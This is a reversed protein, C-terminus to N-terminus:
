DIEIIEAEQTIEKISKEFKKIEEKQYKEIANTLIDLKTKYTYREILGRSLYNYYQDDGVIQKCLSISKLHDKLFKDNEVEDLNKLYIDLIKAIKSIFESDNTINKVDEFLNIKDPIVKRPGSDLVGPVDTFTIDIGYRLASIFYNSIKFINLYDYLKEILSYFTIKTKNDKIDNSISNHFITSIDTLYNELTYQKENYNSNKYFNVITQLLNKNKYELINSIDTNNANKLFLTLEPIDNEILKKIYDIVIGDTEKEFPKFYILGEGFNSYLKESKYSKKLLLFNLTNENEIKYNIEKEIIKTINKETGKTIKKETKKRYYFMPSSKPLKKKAIENVHDQIDKFSGFSEKTNYIIKSVEELTKIGKFNEIQFNTMFDNQIEMGEDLKSQIKTRLDVYSFENKYKGKVDFILKLIITEYNDQNIKEGNNKLIGLTILKQYQRKLDPNKEFIHQYIQEIPKPNEKIDTKRKSLNEKIRKIFNKAKHKKEREKTEEKKEDDLAIYLNILYGAFHHVGYTNFLDIKESFYQSFIKIYGEDNDKMYRGRFFNIIKIFSILSLKHYNSNDNILVGNIKETNFGNNSWLLVLNRTFDSLFLNELNQNTLKKFQGKFKKSIGLSSSMEILQYLNIMIRFFQNNGLKMYNLIYAVFNAAYNWNFLGVNYFNLLAKRTEYYSNIDKKIFDLITSISNKGTEENTILPNQKIFKLFYDLDTAFKNKKFNDKGIIDSYFIKLTELELNKEEEDFKIWSKVFVDSFEFKLRKARTTKPKDGNAEILLKSSIDMPIEKPKSIYQYPFKSNTSKDVWKLILKKIFLESLVKDLNVEIGIKKVNLFIFKKVPSDTIETTDEESFNSLFLTRAKTSQKRYIYIFGNKINKIFDDEDTIFGLGSKKKEYLGSFNKLFKKTNNVVDFYIEEFDEDFDFNFIKDLEEKTQGYKIIIFLSDNINKVTEFLGKNLIDKKLIETDDYIKMLNLINQNIFDKVNEDDLTDISQNNEKINELFKIINEYFLKELRDEEKTTKEKTKENYKYYEKIFEDENLIYNTFIFNKHKLGDPELDIYNKIISVDDPFDNFIFNITEINLDLSRFRIIEHITTIKETEDFRKSPKRGKVDLIVDKLIDGSGLFDTYDYEIIDYNELETGKDILKELEEKSLSDLEKERKLREEEEMEEERTQIRDKDKSLYLPFLESYNFYDNDKLSTTSLHYSLTTYSTENEDLGYLGGARRTRGDRQKETSRNSAPELNLVDITQLVNIGQSFSNPILLCLIKEGHLNEKSNWKNLVLYSADIRQTTTLKVGYTAISILIDKYYSDNNEKKGFFNLFDKSLTLPGDKKNVFFTPTKNNYIPKFKNKTRDKLSKIWTDAIDPKGKKTYYERVYTEGPWYRVALNAVNKAFDNFEDEMKIRKQDLTIEEKSDSETLKVKPLINENLYDKIEKETNFVWNTKFNQFSEIQITNLEEDNQPIRGEPQELITASLIAFASNDLFPLKYKEKLTGPPNISKQFELQIERENEELTGKIRRDKYEKRLEDLQKRKETIKQKDDPDLEFLERELKKVQNEKKVFRFYPMGLAKLSAAVIKLNSDDSRCSSLIASKNLYGREIQPNYIKQLWEITKISTPHISDSLQDTFIREIIFNSDYLISSLLCKNRDEKQGNFYSLKEIRDVSIKQNNIISALVKKTWTENLTIKTAEEPQNVKKTGFLDIIEQSRVTLVFGSTLTKLMNYTYRNPQGGKEKDDFYLYDSLKNKIDDFTENRSISPIIYKKKEMNGKGTNSSYYESLTAFSYSPIVQVGSEYDEEPFLCDFYNMMDLFKNTGSAFFIKLYKYDKCVRKILEFDILQNSSIRNENNKGVTLEAEDLVIILSDFVNTEPEKQGDKPIGNEDYIIKSWKYISPDKKTPSRQKLQFGRKNNLDLNSEKIKVLEININEEDRNDSFYTFYNEIQKQIAQTYDKMVLSEYKFLIENRGSESLLLKEISKSNLKQKYASPKDLKFEMNFKLEKKNSEEFIPESIAEIVGFKTKKKFKNLLNKGIHYVFADRVNKTINKDFTFHFSIKYFHVDTGLEHYKNKHTWEGNYKYYGLPHEDIGKAYSYLKEYEEIEEISDINGGNLFTRGLKNRGRLFNSLEKFSLIHNANFKMAKSYERRSSFKRMSDEEFFNYNNLESEVNPKLNAATVYLLTYNRLPEDDTLVTKIPRAIYKFSQVILILILTKGGGVDVQIVIGKLKNVSRSLYYILKQYNFPLLLNYNSGIDLKDFTTYNINKSRTITQNNNKDIYEDLAKELKEIDKGKVNLQTLYKKIESDGAIGSNKSSPKPRKSKPEIDDEAPRKAELLITNENLIKFCNICINNKLESFTDCIYCQKM